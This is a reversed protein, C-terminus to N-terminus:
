RQRKRSRLSSLIGHERVTRENSEEGRIRVGSWGISLAADQSEPVGVEAVYNRQGTSVSCLPFERNQERGRPFFLGFFFRALVRFVFLFLLVFVGGLFLLIVGFFVVFVGGFFCCFVGFFCWFFM